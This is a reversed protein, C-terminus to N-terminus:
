GIQADMDGGFVFVNHKPINRVLSSLKNYFAIPDTEESVNTSSYCSIIAASPNGNFMAVTMRLRIKEISSLSKLARTRIQMGVRRHWIFSDIFIILSYLNSNNM